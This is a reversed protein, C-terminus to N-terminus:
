RHFRRQQLEGDSDLIAGNSDMESTPCRWIDQRSGRKEDLCFSFGTNIQVNNPNAPLLGPRSARHNVV